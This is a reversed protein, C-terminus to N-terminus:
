KSNADFTLVDDDYDGNPDYGTLTVEKIPKGDMDTGSAAYKKAKLVANTLTTEGIDIFSVRGDTRTFEILYGKM